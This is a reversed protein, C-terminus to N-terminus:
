TLLTKLAAMRPDIDDTECGCAGERLDKGCAPCLGLCDAQCLVRMPTSLIVLERLIPELDIHHDADIPLAPEEDSARIPLSQFREDLEVDLTKAVPTL